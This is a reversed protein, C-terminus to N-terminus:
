KAVRHKLFWQALNERRYARDWSNHGVGPYVTFKPRGGAEKIADIMKKSREIPVARDNDGHFNWIPVDKLKPADEPKGGGCIPALAAFVGPNRPAIAWTGTGGMSLGTLYVRSADVKYEKKTKELTGLVLKEHDVWGTRGPPKQPFVAIFRWSKEDLMIAPGLGVAVQKWGDTGQEGSGHLFVIAPLPTEGDYASPVYVVYKVKGGDVEIEKQLFGSQAAATACLFPVALLSGFFGTRM